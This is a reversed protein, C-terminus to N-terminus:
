MNMVFVNVVGNQGNNSAGIAQIIDILNQQRQRAIARRVRNQRNRVYNRGRVQGRGGVQGRGRRGVFGRGRGGFGRGRGRGRENNHHPGVTPSTYIM